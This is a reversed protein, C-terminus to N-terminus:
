GCRPEVIGVKPTSKKKEKNNFKYNKKSVQNLRFLIACAKGRASVSFFLFSPFFFGFFQSNLAKENIENM